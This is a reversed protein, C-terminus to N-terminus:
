LLPTTVLYWRPVVEPQTGASGAPGPKFKVMPSTKIKLAVSSEEGWPRGVDCKMGLHGEAPMAKSLHPPFDWSHCLNWGGDKQSRAGDGTPFCTALGNIKASTVGGICPCSSIFWLSLILSISLVLTLDWLPFVRCPNPLFHCKNLLESTDLTTAMTPMLHTISGSINDTLCRQGTKHKPSRFSELEPWYM